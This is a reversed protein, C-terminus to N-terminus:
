LCSCHNDMFVTPPHDGCNVCSYQYDRVILTESHLYGHLVTDASPFQVVEVTFPMLKKLQGHGGGATSPLESSTISSLIQAEASIHKKTKKLTMRTANFYVDPCSPASLPMCHLTSWQLVLLSSNCSTSFM